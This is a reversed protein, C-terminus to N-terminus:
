VKPKVDASDVPLKVESADVDLTGVVAAEAEADVDPEVTASALTVALSPKDGPMEMVVAHFVDILPPPLAVLLLSYPEDM